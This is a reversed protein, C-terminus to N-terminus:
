WLVFATVAILAIPAIFIALPIAFVAFLSMVLIIWCWWLLAVIRSM